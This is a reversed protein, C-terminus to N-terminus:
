PHSDGEAEGSLWAARRMKQQPTINDVDKLEFEVEEKSGLRWLVDREARGSHLRLQLMDGPKMASIAAQVGGTAPKGNVAVIEDGVKLGAKQADSGVRVASVTPPGDFNRTASFGSDVVQTTRRILHLGVTKFFDDWPIEETGRVYKQFLEGFDTHGVAEAAQRVGDSDPFFKGQRAYNQNMWEFVERLSGRDSTAERVALDLVIGLLFGKNYYSISREPQRYYPYKELWADLSSDEASQVAHAPRQELEGVQEAVDHLFRREDMLGARMEIFAGATSTCGESFWLARTFQEKTYDVPEISQPRIRKVNWLHFFEHATVDPLTDPRDTLTQTSISIATSYAHEMGGGAPGRPFHYIFLYSEFPRDNMWATASATISQLMAVIKDMNYDSPDADVAVRYHAGGQDFGAEQFAGIEVPSDVLEDYNNAIFVNGTGSLATAIKWGAPLDVFSVQVPAEQEGALHAPLGQVYFYSVRADIPYMLIQALNFFAHHENLQASFPGPQDAYIEYEVVAGDETGDVSWRSKDLLRIPLPHGDTTQAKAWNVYQSFDRVQYLANWVPLQLEHATAGPALQMRVHVLHKEADALSVSYSVLGVEHTAAWASGLCLWIVAAAFLSKRFIPIV